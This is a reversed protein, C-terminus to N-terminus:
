QNESWQLPFYSSLLYYYSLSPPLSHSSTLSFIVTDERNFNKLLLSQLRDCVHPRSWKNNESCRFMRYKRALSTVAESYCRISLPSDASTALSEILSEFRSLDCVVITSLEICTPKFICIIRHNALEGKQAM